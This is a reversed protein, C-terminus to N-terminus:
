LADHPYLLRKICSCSTPRSSLASARALVEDLCQVAEGEQGRLAVVTTSVNNPEVIGQHLNTRGGDYSQVAGHRDCPTQHYGQQQNLQVQHVTQNFPFVLVDDGIRVHLWVESASEDRETFVLGAVKKGPFLTTKRLAIASWNARELEYGTSQIQDRTIVSQMADASLDMAVLANTTARGHGGVVGAMGMTADLLVMTGWFAEANANGANDRSRKLDLALLMREPDTVLRTAGCTRTPPTGKRACTMAYFRAPELLVSTDTLNEIEVRFAIQNGQERAFAVAARVTKGARTTAETGGVWVVDKTQPSLRLVPAPTACGISMLCPLLLLMNM